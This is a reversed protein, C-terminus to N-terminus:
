VSYKKKINQFLLNYLDQKKAETLDQTYALAWSTYYGKSHKYKVILFIKGKPAIQGKNVRTSKAEYVQPTPAKFPWM